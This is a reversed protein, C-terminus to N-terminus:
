ENNQEMFNKLKELLEIDSLDQKRGSFIKMTIIDDISALNINIDKIKRVSKREYAKTFDLPHVLL